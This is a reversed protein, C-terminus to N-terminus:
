RRYVCKGLYSIIEYQRLLKSKVRDCQLIECIQFVIKELADNLVLSMSITLSAKLLKKISLTVKFLNRFDYFVSKMTECIEIIERRKMEALREVLHDEDDLLDEVLKLRKDNFANKGEEEDLFIILM